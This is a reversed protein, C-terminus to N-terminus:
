SLAPQNTVTGEYFRAFHVISYQTPRWYFLQWGANPCTTGLLLTALYVYFRVFYLINSLSKKCDYRSMRTIYRNWFGPGLTFRVQSEVISRKRWNPRGEKEPKEWSQDEPCILTILSFPNLGAFSLTSAASTDLIDFSQSMQALQWKQGWHQYQLIIPQWNSSSQLCQWWQWCQTLSPEHPFSQLMSPKGWVHGVSPNLHLSSQFIHIFQIKLM